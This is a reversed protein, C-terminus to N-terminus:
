FIKFKINDLLLMEVQDHFYLEFLLIKHKCLNEFTNLSSIIKM